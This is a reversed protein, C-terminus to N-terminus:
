ETGGALGTRRYGHVHYATYGYAAPYDDDSFSVTFEISDVTSGSPSTTGGFVVKGNSLTVDCDDYAYNPTPTTSGFTLANVDCPVTVTFDWFSELDNVFLEKGNDAATNYTIMMVTGLGFPDEIVVNGSADVADVTVMWEGALNVTSTDGIDDKECACMVVAVVATLIYRFIKNM